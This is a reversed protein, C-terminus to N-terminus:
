IIICQLIHSWKRHLTISRIPDRPDLSGFLQSSDSWKSSMMRHSISGTWMPSFILQKPHLSHVRVSINKTEHWFSMFKNIQYQPHYNDWISQTRDVNPGNHLKIFSHLSSSKTQLFVYSAQLSIDPTHRWLGMNSSMDTCNSKIYSGFLQLSQGFRALIISSHQPHNTPPQKRVWLRQPMRTSLYIVLGYLKLKILNKM